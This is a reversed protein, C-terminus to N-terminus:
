IKSRQVARVPTELEFKSFGFTGARLQPNERDFVRILGKLDGENGLFLTFVLFFDVTKLFRKIQGSERPGLFFNM